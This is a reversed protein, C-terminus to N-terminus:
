FMPRLIHFTEKHYTYLIHMYIIYYKSCISLLKRQNSYEPLERKFLSLLTSISIEIERWRILKKNSLIEDLLTPKRAIVFFRSPSRPIFSSHWRSHGTECYHRLLVLLPWLVADGLVYELERLTRKSSNPHCNREDPTSSTCHVRTYNTM